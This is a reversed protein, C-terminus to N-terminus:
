SFPDIGEAIAKCKIVVLTPIRKVRMTEPLRIEKHQTYRIWEGKARSPAALEL